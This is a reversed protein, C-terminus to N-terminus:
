FKNNNQFVQGPPPNFQTSLRLQSSFSELHMKIHMNAQQFFNQKAAKVAFVKAFKAGNKSRWISTSFHVWFYHWFKIRLISGFIAGLLSIWYKSYLKSKKLDKKFWFFIPDGNQTGNQSGMKPTLNQCWKQTWKQVECVHMDFHM